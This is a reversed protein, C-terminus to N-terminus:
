GLPMPQAIKAARSELFSVELAMHYIRLQGLQKASSLQISAENKKKRTISM